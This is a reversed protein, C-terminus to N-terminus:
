LAKHVVVPPWSGADSPLEVVYVVNGGNPETTVSVSTQGAGYPSIVGIGVVDGPALVELRTGTVIPAHATVRLLATGTAFAPMQGIGGGGDLVVVVGGGAVFTALTPAWSAGLLALAGDPATRQDHVVLVDYNQPVLSNPVDSDTISSTLIMTRGLQRAVSTLIADVRAVSTADAYREYTMVHLPNTQSVFVANSLVHAQATGPLTTQYDHGIYIIGGSAAGVCLSSQCLQSACSNACTGCNLPDNTPDVCAGACTIFPAACSTASDADASSSGADVIGSDAGAADTNADGTTADGQPADGAGGDSAGTDGGITGDAGGDAAGADRGGTDGANADVGGADAVSADGNGTDSGDALVGGDGGAESSSDDTPTADGTTVDDTSTDATARDAVTGDSTGDTAGDSSACAGSSCADTACVIGCAGCNLPDNALEVCALGCQVYGAACTGGVLAGDSGCGVAAALVVLLWVVVAWPLDRTRM